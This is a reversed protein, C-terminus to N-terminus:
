ARIPMVIYLYNPDEASKILTPKVVDTFKLQVEKGQIHQLGEILYRWNFSIELPEGAAKVALTTTNEGLDPDSAWLTLSSDKGTDVKLRIDNVRSSLLSVLRINKILEERGAILETKFEHPIFSAYNPYSGEIIRSIVENAETEFGVQNTEVALRVDNKDSLLRLVEAATRQPLIFSFEDKKYEKKLFIKKEALRFSDTAALCLFEQNKEKLLLVGTIEPRTESVATFPIVQSLASSFDKVEFNILYDKKLHPIIPFDKPNQSNLEGRYKGSIVGIVAEKKTKLEINNESLNALIGSFIRAPITIEGEEEVKATFWSRVGIELNTSSIIVRNKETKLLINNLIPLTLNRSIIKECNEVAEKLKENICIVKM